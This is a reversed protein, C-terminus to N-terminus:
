SLFVGSVYFFSEFTTKFDDPLDIHPVLGMMIYNAMDQVDDEELDLIAAVEYSVIYIYKLMQEYDHQIGNFKVRADHHNLLLKKKLLKIYFQLIFRKIENYYDEADEYRHAFLFKEYKKNMNKLKPLFRKMETKIALLQKSNIEDLNMPKRDYNHRM